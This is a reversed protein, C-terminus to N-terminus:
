CLQLLGEDNIYSIKEINPIKTKNPSFNNFQILEDECFEEGKYDNKNIDKLSIFKIKRFGELLHFGLNKLACSQNLRLTSSGKHALPYYKVDTIDSRAGRDKKILDIFIIEYDQHRQCFKNFSAYKFKTLNHNYIVIAQQKEVSLLDIDSLGYARVELWLRQNYEGGISLSNSDWTRAHEIHYLDILNEKTKHLKQCIGSLATDSHPEGIIFDPLHEKISEYTGKKFAFADRGTIYPWSDNTFILELDKQIECDRRVYEIIDSKEQLLNEYFTPSIICDFNSYIIYDENSALKSGEELMDKLFLFDKNHGLVNKANRELHCVKWGQRAFPESTCAVLQVQPYKSAFKELSELALSTRKYLSSRKDEPLFFNVVHVIKKSVQGTSFIVPKSESDFSDIDGFRHPRGKSAKVSCDYALVNGTLTVSGRVKRRLSANRQIIQQDLYRNIKFKLYFFSLALNKRAQRLYSKLERDRRVSLFNLLSNLYLWLRKLM